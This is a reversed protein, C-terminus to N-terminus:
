SPRFDQNERRLFSPLLLEARARILRHVEAADGSEHSGDALRHMLSRIQSDLVAAAPLPLAAPRDRLEGDAGTPTAVLTEM